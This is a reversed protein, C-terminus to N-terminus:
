VCFNTSKRKEMKSNRLLSIFFKVQTIIKIKFILIKKTARENSQLGRNKPGGEGRFLRGVNLKINIFKKKKM